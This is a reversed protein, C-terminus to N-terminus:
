DLLSKKRQRIIKRNITEKKKNVLVRERKELKRKREKEALYDAGLFTLIFELYDM